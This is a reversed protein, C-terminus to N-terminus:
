NGHYKFYVGHQNKTVENNEVRKIWNCNACLLQYENSGSLVKKLFNGYTRAGGFRREKSGGGNVHDVQLARKDAFGCKTCVSGLAGILADREKKYRDSERQRHKRGLESEAWKRTYIRIKNPNRKAYEKNYAKKNFM